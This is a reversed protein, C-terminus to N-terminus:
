PGRPGSTVEPGSTAGSEPSAKRRRRQRRVLLVAVVAAAVVSVVLAWEVLTLGLFTGPELAQYRYAALMTESTLNGGPDYARTRVDNGVQPAFWAWNSSGDPFTEVEPYATFTGAPTDVSTPEGLSFRLTWQGTGNQHYQNGGIAYVDQTFAYAVALSGNGGVPLPYTWGDALPQFTTTNQVRISFPVITQYTGNVSLDLLSYVAHLNAPEFREEGTVIWTGRVSATLNGVTVTGEATGSGELVVQLANVTAGGVATAQMGQMTSTATGTLNLGPLITTNTRYTWFDGATWAPRDLSAGASSSASVTLAIALAWAAIPLVRM